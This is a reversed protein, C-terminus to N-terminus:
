KPAGNLKNKADELELKLLRMQESQAERHTDFNELMVFSDAPLLGLAEHSITEFRNNREIVYWTNQFNM